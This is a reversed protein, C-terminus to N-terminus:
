PAHELARRVRRRAEARGGASPVREVLIVTWAALFLALHPAMRDLTGGDFDGYAALARDTGPAGRWSLCALDYEVPGTCANELDTWLPGQPSWLINRLHSDGHLPRGGSVSTMGAALHRLAALDSAPLLDSPELESLLQRVEALRDCSPLSGPYGTLAEHLARLSRGAAASEFRRPDDDVYAWFSVLFGDQEHPGPDLGGAPPAVPAGGESLFSALEVEQLFWDRSRLRALTIPVRAVVPAPRLHVLLNTVDRLVRADDCPLGHRAAAALAASLASGPVTLDRAYAAGRRCSWGGARGPAVPQVAASRRGARGPRSGRRHLSRRDRPRRRLTSRRM